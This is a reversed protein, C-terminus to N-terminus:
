AAGGILGFYDAVTARDSFPLTRQGIVQTREHGKGAVVICDNLDASEIAVRIADARSHIVQTPPSQMGASIQRVIESPSESRPNDDTLIVADAYRSAIEGMLPRKGQDRDGGCGFVVWLRGSTHDRLTLLVQELADPTHAYDVVVLPQGAVRFQEMRGPAPELRGVVPVLDSWSCLRLAVLATMALALNQANFRGYLPSQLTYAEGDVTLVIETGTPHPTCRTLHVRSERAEGVTWVAGRATPALSRVFPDDVCLVSAELDFEQFLRAKAAGYRALTGHYDLHDRTLNTFLGVSFPIGSVRGQDLAHSSVEMAIGRAGRALLDACQGALTLPDATTRDSNSLVDRGFSVGLTGIRGMPMGVYSALQAILSVVTTKGNTGTVGFVPREAFSLGHWAAGIEPLRARLQAVRLCPIHAPIPGDWEDFLVAIAGRAVADELFHMGHATSGAIAIFVAGPVVLRSDLQIASIEMDVTAPTQPSLLHLLEGLTM